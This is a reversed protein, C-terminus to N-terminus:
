FAVTANLGIAVIGDELNNNINPVYYDVGLGLATTLTDNFDRRIPYSFVGFGAATAGPGSGGTSVRLGVEDLLYYSLRVLSMNPINGGGGSIFVMAAEFQEGLGFSIAMSQAAGINETGLNYGMVTGIEIGFIDTVAEQAFLAPAALLLLAVVLITTITKKM